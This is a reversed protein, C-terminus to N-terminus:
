RSPRGILLNLHDPDRRLELVLERTAYGFFWWLSLLAVWAAAPLVVQVATGTGLALLLLSQGILFLGLTSEFCIWWGRKPPGKHPSVAGARRRALIGLDRVFGQLLLAVGSWRFLDPVSLSFPAPFAVWAVAAAALGAAGVGLEFKDYGTRM